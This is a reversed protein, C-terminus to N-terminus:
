RRFAVALGPNKRKDRSHDHDRQHDIGTGCNREIGSGDFFAGVAQGFQEIALRRQDAGDGLEVAVVKDIYHLLARIPRAERGDFLNFIRVFYIRDEPSGAFDCQRAPFAFQHM